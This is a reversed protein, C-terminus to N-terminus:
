ARIVVIMFQMKNSMSMKKIKVRRGDHRTYGWEKQSLDHRKIGRVERTEDRNFLGGHKEAGM